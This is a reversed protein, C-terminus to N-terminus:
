KAWGDLAKTAVMKFECAMDAAEERSVKEPAKKEIAKLANLLGQVRELPVCPIAGPKEYKDPETKYAYACKTTVYVWWVKSM